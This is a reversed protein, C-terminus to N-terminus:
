CCAWSRPLSGFPRSPVSLHVSEKAVFLIGMLVHLGKWGIARLRSALFENVGAMLLVTGLLIGVTALSTADFWLVVLAVLLWVLGTVLFIWWASTMEGVARREAPLSSVM